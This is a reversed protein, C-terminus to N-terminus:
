QITYVSYMNLVTLGIHTYMFYRWHKSSNVSRHLIAESLNHKVGEVVAL